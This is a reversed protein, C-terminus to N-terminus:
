AARSRGSMLLYGIVLLWLGGGVLYKVLSPILTSSSWFAEVFAAILLMLTSGFVIEIADRGRRRLAERRSYEGPAILAHGLILGAGGALVIATLEFSGHGSVFPLFTSAFGVHILHGAVAGIVLGNYVIYGIAGLGFALGTAFVQFSIGINNVIYFGFMYLDDDSQRERGFRENAPDYMSEMSSVDGPSMVSYVLEPNVNVAIAMGFLPLAFLLGAVAVYRSEARVRRAFGGFVFALLSALFGSRRVYLVNHGARALRNLREILARSYGRTQAVSLDRAVLQYGEVFADPDADDALKYGYRVATLSAEFAAWREEGLREFSAQNM